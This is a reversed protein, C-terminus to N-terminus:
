IPFRVQLFANQEEQELKNPGFIELRRQAEQTSVGQKDCQLLTFVDPM